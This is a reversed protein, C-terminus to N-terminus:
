SLLDSEPEACCAFLAVADNRNFEENNSLYYNISDYIDRDLGAILYIYYGALENIVAFKKDDTQVKDLHLLKHISQLMDVFLEQDLM